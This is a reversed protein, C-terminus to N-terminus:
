RVTTDQIRTWNALFSHISGYTCRGGTGDLRRISMGSKNSLKLYYEKGTEYGLSPTGIFKAKIIM